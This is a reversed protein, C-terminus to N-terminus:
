KELQADGEHVEVALKHGGHFFEFMIGQDGRVFFAYDGDDREFPKCTVEFQNDVAKQHLEDVTSRHAVEHGIHFPGLEPKGFRLGPMEFLSFEFRDYAVTCTGRSTDRFKVETGFLIAFFQEAGALDHVPLALHITKFKPETKEFTHQM